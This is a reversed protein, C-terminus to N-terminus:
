FRPQNDGILDPTIYIKAQRMERGNMKKQNIFEVPVKIDSYTTDCYSYIVGTDQTTLARLRKQILLLQIM